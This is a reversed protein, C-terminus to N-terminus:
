VLQECYFLPFKSKSFQKYSAPEIDEDLAFLEKNMMGQRFAWAYVFGESIFYNDYEYDREVVGRYIRKIGTIKGYIPENLETREIRRKDEFTVGEVIAKVEVVSGISFRTKNMNKSSMLLRDSLHKGSKITM